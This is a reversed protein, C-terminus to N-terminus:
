GRLINELIEVDSLAGLDRFQDVVADPNRVGQQVLWTRTCRFDASTVDVRSALYAELARSEEPTLPLRRWFETAEELRALRKLESKGQKGLLLARKLCSLASKYDLLAEHAQSLLLWADASEPHAKAYEILKTRAGNLHPIADPAPARRQYNGQMSLKLGQRLLAALDHLDTPM